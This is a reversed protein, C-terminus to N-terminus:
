ADGIEVIERGEALLALARPFTASFVERLRANSVNGCTVWLLRPPAGCRQVLDVFDIDKSVLVAQAERAASFITTDKAYLLGIDRLAVSEVAFTSGLWHALGPPLQADVWFKM